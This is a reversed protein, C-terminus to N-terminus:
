DYITWSIARPVTGSSLTVYWNGNRCNVSSSTIGTIQSAGLLQVGASPDILFLATGGNNIDRLRLLGSADQAGPLVTAAGLAGITAVAAGFYTSSLTFVPGPFYNFENSVGAVTNINGFYTLKSPVVSSLNSCGKVNNSCQNNTFILGEVDSSTSIAYQQSEGAEPYNGNYGANSINNGEILSHEIFVGNPVHTGGDITIGDKANARIKGGIWRIGSGGSIHVGAGGAGAAWCDVCTFDINASGLTSDLVYGDSTSLDSQMNRAFIFTPYQNGSYQVKLFNAGANGGVVNTLMTGSAQSDILVTIGTTNGAQGYATVDTIYTDNAYDIGIGYGVFDSIRSKELHNDETTLINGNPGSIHVLYTNKGGGRVGIDRAYNSFATGSRTGILIGNAVNTGLWLDCGEFRGGIAGMTIATGSGDYSLEAMPDSVTTNDIRNSAQCEVTENDIFVLENHPSIIYQSKPNKPAPGPYPMIVIRCQVVSPCFKKVVNAIQVAIDNVPPLPLPMAANWYAACDTGVYAVHNLVCDTAIQAQSESDALIERGCGALLIFLCLVMLLKTM